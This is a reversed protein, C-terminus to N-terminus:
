DQEHDTAELHSQLPQGCLGRHLCLKHRSSPCHLLRHEEGVHHQLQVEVLAEAAHRHGNAVHRRQVDGATAGVTRACLLDRQSIKEHLFQYLPALNADVLDLGLILQHVQAGLVKGLVTVAVEDLKDVLKLSLVGVIEGDDQLLGYEEQPLFVQQTNRM